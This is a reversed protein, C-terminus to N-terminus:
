ATGFKADQWSTFILYQSVLTAVAAFLWWTDNKFWWLLAALVFLLAAVLWLAGNAKSIPQALQTVAALHFAKAFGLLHILGHFVILILLLFKM